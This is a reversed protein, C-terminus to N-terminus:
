GVSTGDQMVVNGDDDTASVNQKNEDCYVDATDDSMKQQKSADDDVDIQEAVNAPQIDKVSM